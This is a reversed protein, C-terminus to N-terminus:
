SVPVLSNHTYSRKNNHVNMKGKTRITHTYASSYALQYAKGKCARRASLFPSKGLSGQIKLGLPDIYGGGINMRLCTPLPSQINIPDM